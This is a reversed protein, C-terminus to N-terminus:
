RDDDDVSSFQTNSDDDLSIGFQALMKEIDAMLSDVSANKYMGTPTGTTDILGLLSGIESTLEPNSYPILVSQNSSFSSDASETTFSTSSSTQTSSSSATETTFSSQTGPIEISDSQNVGQTDSADVRPESADAVSTDDQLSQDSTDPSQDTDTSTASIFHTTVSDPSATNTDQSITVSMTLSPDFFTGYGFGANASANDPTKVSAPIEMRPRRTPPTIQQIRSQIEGSTWEELMSRKPWISHRRTIRERLAILEPQTHNMGLSRSISWMAKSYDGEQALREAEVNLMGTMRERSWPLLGERTGTHINKIYGKAREGQDTLIQDNILSPTILFIIETRQTEDDHGRFAAGIIPIDGVVPVQRRSAVTSERFLGGLVVTQGDRVMVNTVLENTIEDPITVAIGTADTATRIVAESVQPKLEMRITGDDSVFPRFYLQTGTDLFEVTQVTATDTATTSLFGVKRGVLVRAPQRNLTLIKPTSIITTDTVEDLLRMFIAVDQDVIGVKFTAPGATGGATSTFARGVGDDPTQVDTATGALLRSGMGNILSDAAKLPGGVGVFDSFNLDDIISFDIGFANAETLATQLITAEVLVQAPKTDLESLLSVIAEVNEEYDYIVVTASNAFDEAGVPTSSPINFADEQGNTKIQGSESLLPKVFEAADIANLYNLRVVKAVPVRSEQIIQNLEETTYVYIFNGKEIYGYGNPHLIADMAEYFTTSFLDATITASVNQGTVINRQSRIALLQLVAALNEDQVHLEVLDYDSVAVSGEFVDPTDDSQGPEDFPSTSPHGSDGLRELAQNLLDQQALASTSGALIVLATTAVVPLLTRIRNVSSQRAQRENNTM